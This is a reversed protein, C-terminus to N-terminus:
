LLEREKDMKDLIDILEHRYIVMGSGLDGYYTRIIASIAGSEKDASAELTMSFTDDKLVYKQM